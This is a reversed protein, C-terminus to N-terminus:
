YDTKFSNEFPIKLLDKVDEDNRGELVDLGYHINEVPTKSYTGFLRDWFPFINGFNTDTEPRIYHHHVRHMNPTVIIYSLLKDFRRNMKINAHNFQSLIVSLSQYLLVLWMPAGCMFVAITTFVARFVSEGPHHRNATTTDVHTDSHHIVHFKWMWKIKHEIYHILWAGILDLLMLGIILQLWLPMIIWQLVGFRHQVCWVSIFVTLLAFGFNVIITTITFFINIGAHKWKNYQFSFLPIASEILWFFTIGGALILARYLSSMNQFFEILANM